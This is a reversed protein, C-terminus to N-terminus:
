VVPQTGLFIGRIYEPAVFTCYYAGLIRDGIPNITGVPANLTRDAITLVGLSVTVIKEGLTWQSGTTSLSELGLVLSPTGYKYVAATQEAPSLGAWVAAVIEDQVTRCSKGPLSTASPGFGWSVTSYTTSTDDGFRQKETEPRRLSEQTRMKCRVQVPTTRGADAYEVRQGTLVRRAAGDNQIGSKTLVFPDGGSLSQGVLPGPTDYVYNDIGYNANVLDAPTIGATDRQRDACFSFYGEPSSVPAAGPAFYARAVGTGAGLVVLVTALVAVRRRGVRMLVVPSQAKPGGPGATM